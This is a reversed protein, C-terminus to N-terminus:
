SQIVGNKMKGKVKLHGNKYFQKYEGSKRPYSANIEDIRMAIIKKILKKPFPKDRDFQLAGKSTRYKEIELGFGEFPRGVGPFITNHNKFGAYSMVLDGDIRISPMGWAIVEEGGPLAEVVADRVSQLANRQEPDFRKLYKSVDASSM